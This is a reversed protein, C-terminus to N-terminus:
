QPTSISASASSSHSHHCEKDCCIVQPRKEESPFIRAIVCVVITFMLVVSLAYIWKYLISNRKEEPIWSEITTKMADNFALSVIFSLAALFITIVSKQLDYVFRSAM